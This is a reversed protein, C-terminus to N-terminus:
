TENNIRAQSWAGAGRTRGVVAVTALCMAAAWWRPEPSEPQGLPILWAIDPVLNQALCAGLFLLLTVVGGATAGLLATLAFALATTTVVNAPIYHWPVGAPLRTAGLLVPVTALATSVLALAGCLAGVRRTALHEWEYMRPRLLGAVMCGTVIPAFEIVPIDRAPNPWAYDVPIARRAQLVCVGAAALWLASVPLAVRASLFLRLGNM